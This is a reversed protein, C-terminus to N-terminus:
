AGEWRAWDNQIRASIEDDIWGTPARVCSAEARALTDSHSLLNGTRCTTQARAGEYRDVTRRLGHSFAFMPSRVGNAVASIKARSRAQEYTTHTTRQSAM